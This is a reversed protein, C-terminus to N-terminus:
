PDSPRSGRQSTAHWSATSLATPRRLCSPNTAVPQGWPPFVGIAHLVIDTGLSLIVGALIGAVVPGISRCIHSPRQTESM